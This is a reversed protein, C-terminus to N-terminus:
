TKLLLRYNSDFSQSKGAGLFLFYYNVRKEYKISLCPLIDLDHTYHLKCLPVNGDYGGIKDYLYVIIHLDCRSTINIENRLRKFFVNM